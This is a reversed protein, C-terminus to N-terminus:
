LPASPAGPLPTVVAASAVTRQRRTDQEHGVPSRHVELLTRVQLNVALVSKAHERFRITPAFPGAAPPNGCKSSPLGWLTRPPLATGPQEASALSPSDARPCLLVRFRLPEGDTLGAQETGLHSLDPPPNALDKPAALRAIFPLMSAFQVLLGITMKMLPLKLTAAM